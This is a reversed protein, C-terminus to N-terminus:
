SRVQIVISQYYPTHIGVVSILCPPTRPFRAAFSAAASRSANAGAAGAQISTSTSRITGYSNTVSQNLGGRFDRALFGPTRLNSHGAQFPIRTFVLKMTCRNM